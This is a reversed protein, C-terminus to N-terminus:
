ADEPSKRIYVDSPTDGPYGEQMQVEYGLSQLEENLKAIKNRFGQPVFTHTYAIQIVIPPNGTM